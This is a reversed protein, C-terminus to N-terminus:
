DVKVGDFRLMMRAREMEEWAYSTLGAALWVRYQDLLAARTQPTNGLTYDSLKKHLLSKQYIIQASEGSIMPSPRVINLGLLAERAPWVNKSSENLRYVEGNYLTITWQQAWVTDSLALIAAVAISVISSRPAKHEVEQLSDLPINM